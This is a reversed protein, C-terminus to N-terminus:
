LAPHGGGPQGRAAHQPVACCSVAPAAAPTPTPLPCPSAPPPLANTSPRNCRRTLVRCAEAPPPGQARSWWRLGGGVLLTRLWAWRATHLSFFTCPLELLLEQLRLAPFAAALRALHREVAAQVHAVLQPLDLGAMYVGDVRVVARPDIGPLPTLQFAGSPFMLDPFPLLTHPQPPLTPLRPAPCSPLPTPSSPLGFVREHCPPLRFPTTEWCRLAAPTPRCCAPLPPSASSYRLSAGAGARGGGGVWRRGGAGGVEHVAIGLAAWTRQLREVDLLCGSTAPFWQMQNQEQHVSFKHGFSDRVAAPPLHIDTVGLAAALAFAAIHSYQQNVLGTCATYRLQLRYRRGGVLLGSAASADGGGGFRRGLLSGGAGPLRTASCGATACLVVVLVTALLLQQPRGAPM